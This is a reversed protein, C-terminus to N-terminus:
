RSSRVALNRLKSSIKLKAARAPEDNIQFHIKNAVRVFNVMGGAALFQDNEGVTLVPAGRLRKLLDGLSAKESDSIFLIHCNTAQDLSACLQVSIPHELIKKGAVTKALDEGFPNEGLIGIVFPSSASPLATTPWEVFKAFNYLFAAKLQYESPQPEQARATGSELFLLWGLTLIVTARALM